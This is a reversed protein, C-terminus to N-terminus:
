SEAVNSIALQGGSGGPSRASWREYSEAMQQPLNSGFGAGFVTSDGPNKAM